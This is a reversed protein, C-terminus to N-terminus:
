KCLTNLICNYNYFFSVLSATIGTIIYPWSWWHLAEPHQPGFKFAPPVFSDIFASIWLSALWLM